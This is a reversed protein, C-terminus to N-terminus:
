LSPAAPMVGLGARKRDHPVHTLGTVHIRLKIAKHGARACAQTCPLTSSSNHQLLSPRFGAIRSTWPQHRQRWRSPGQPRVVLVLRDQKYALSQLNMARAMTPTAFALPRGAGKRSPRLWRRQELHEELDIKIAEHEARSVGLDEPLFQVIASINAHVRVIAACATRRIRETRGQMKELSYLV